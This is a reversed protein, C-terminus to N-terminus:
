GAGRTRRPSHPIGLQPLGTAGDACRGPTRCPRTNRHSGWDGHLRARVSCRGGASGSTKLGALRPRPAEHIVERQQNRAHMSLRQDRRRRQPSSRPNNGLPLRRCCLPPRPRVSRGDRGRRGCDRLAQDVRRPRRRGRVRRPHQDRAPGRRRRAGTPHVRRRRTGVMDGLWDTCPPSRPLPVPILVAPPERETLTVVSTPRREWTPRRDRQPRKGRRRIARAGRDSLGSM